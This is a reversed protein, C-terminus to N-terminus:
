RRRRLAAVALGGAGGLVAALGSRPLAAFTATVSVADATDIPIVIPPLGPAPAQWATLTVDFIIPGM